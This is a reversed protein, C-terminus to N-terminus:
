CYKTFSSGERYQPVMWKARKDLAPWYRSSKLSLPWKWVCNRLTLLRSNCYYSSIQLVDLSRAKQDNDQDVRRRRVNERLPQPQNRANVHKLYVFVRSPYLKLYAHGMMFVTDINWWNKVCFKLIQLNKKCYQPIQYRGIDRGRM